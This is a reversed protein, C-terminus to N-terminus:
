PLKRISLRLASMKSNACFGDGKGGLRLTKMWELMMAVM